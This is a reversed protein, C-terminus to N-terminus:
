RDPPINYYNILFKSTELFPNTLTESAFQVGRPNLTYFFVLFQPKYAPFYGFFSHLFQDKYYGGGAPNAIQATGTKAAISYNPNKAKGKLLAEDVVTVLMRTIEDSTEKKLIQKGDGYSLKKTVGYKYRIEKVLHPTVLKGGNGLSSLARVTEIPTLAIGQGYSATAYEIDRTSDLNKILGKTESPLDIGTEEGLGYNRMYEAFTDKGMKTVVFAAGTNLSENLVRQMNVVGRGKGDFNQIRATNLVLYGKDDYTTNAVVAGSDLGAAMTLPKIISGMEYVGEVLANSFIRTGEEKEFNNPDYDPLLAMAYIEGNMPNIIIGGTQEGRYEDSIKKLEDTLFSQVTPELTLVLDGEGGFNKNKITSGINSFIQSFFNAYVESTDRSLVDNYYRELGYRGSLVNGQYGVFGLIHSALNGLPYFRWRTKEIIVGPIKLAEIADGTKESVQSALQEYPDDAKSAKAIFEDYPTPYIANLARYAEEKDKILRPNIALVYGNELRAAKLTNGSREEFSITGRDFISGGRQVHQRDAKDKFFDAQVVQILYLKSLLIVAGLVIVISLFRVRNQASTKM